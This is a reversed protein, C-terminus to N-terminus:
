PAIWQGKWGKEKKFLARIHEMKNLQLVELETAQIRIVCFYSDDIVEPWSHAETPHAIPTGPSVNPHYAKQAAGQVRSWHARSEEDQRHLSATGSIRVQVKKSPHYFLLAVQSNQRIQETKSTRMDTYINIQLDENISRLVVYRLGIEDPTATALSLYRFPHRNDVLAQKLESVVEDMAQDLPTELTILM